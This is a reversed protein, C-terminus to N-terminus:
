DEYKDFSDHYRRLESGDPCVVHGGYYDARARRAADLLAACANIGPCDPGTWLVQEETGYRGYTAVLTYATATSLM